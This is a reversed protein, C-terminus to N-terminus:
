KKEEYKKSIDLAVKEMTKTDEDELKGAALRGLLDKHHNVMFNLYEVEFDQVRRVPINRLLGRTGCVVIAIQQDVTM